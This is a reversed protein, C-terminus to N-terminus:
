FRESMFNLEKFLDYFSPREEKRIQWCRMMIDYLSQPCTNPKDLRLGNEIGLLYQSVNVGRYPADGYSAVEWCMVGFSWVDSTEDFHRTNFVELPYWKIPWSEDINAKYYKTESNIFRSLKFYTLKSEDENILLVSSASLNRHLVNNEILYSMASAIQSCIRILKLMQVHKNTRLYKNIPGLHAWEFVYSMSSKEKTVCSGLYKLINSHNLKKVIRMEKNLENFNLQSCQKIFVSIEIEKILRGRFAMEYPMNGLPKDIILNESEINVENINEFRNIIPTEQQFQELIEKFTPRQKKKMLWCKYMINYIDPPCKQPRELRYGNELQLHIM